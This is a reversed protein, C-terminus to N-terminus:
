AGGRLAENRLRLPQLTFSREGALRIQDAYQQAQWADIREASGLAYGLLNEGSATPRIERATRPHATALEPIGGFLSPRGERSSVRVRAYMRSIGQWNFPKPLCMSTFFEHYIPESVGPTFPHRKCWFREGSIGDNRLLYFKAALQREIAAAELPTYYVGNAPPAIQLSM